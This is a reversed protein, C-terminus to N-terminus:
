IHILSLDLVQQVREPQKLAKGILTSKGFELLMKETGLSVLSKTSSILVTRPGIAPVPFQELSVEGTNFSQILQRNMSIRDRDRM